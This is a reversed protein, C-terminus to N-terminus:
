AKPIAINRTACMPCENKKKLWPKLCDVHFLHNCVLNGVRDGDVVNFCCIACVVQDDNVHDLLITDQQNAAISDNTTTDGNAAELDDDHEEDTLAAAELDNHYIKTSLELRTPALIPDPEGRARLEERERAVGQQLLFRSWGRYRSSTRSISAEMWREHNNTRGCCTGISIFLHDRAAMGGRSYFCSIVLGVYMLVVFPVIYPVVWGTLSTPSELSLCTVKEDEMRCTDFQLPCYVFYQQSAGSFCGCPRAMISTNTSVPSLIWNGTAEDLDLTSPNSGLICLIQSASTTSVVIGLLFVLVKM